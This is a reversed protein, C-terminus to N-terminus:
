TQDGKARTMRVFAYAPIVSILALFVVAIAFYSPGWSAYNGVVAIFNRPTLPGELRPMPNPPWIDWGGDEHLLSVKGVGGGANRRFEDLARAAEVPTINPGLIYWWVDGNDNTTRYLVARATRNRLWIDLTESRPFIARWTEASFQRIREAYGPSGANDQAPPAEDEPRSGRSSLRLDAQEEPVISADGTDSRIAVTTQGLLLRSIEDRRLFPNDTIAAMDGPIQAIRLFSPQQGAILGLATFRGQFPLAIRQDAAAASIQAASIRGLSAAGDGLTMTPSPPITLSSDPLIALMDTDHAPCELTPPNGPVIMEFSVLNTGSKLLRAPFDIPLEPQIQGGDRDLPLLRITQGNVKVLLISGQTLDDAFGYHLDLRARQSALILWDDPLSFPVRIEAFRTNRLALDQGLAKFSATKGPTLSPVDAQTPVTGLVSRVAQALGSGDTVLMILAGSPSRLFRIQSTGGQVISIGVRRGSVGAPAYPSLVRVSPIEPLAARVATMVQALAGTDVGEQMRVELPQGAAVSDALLLRFSAADAPVVTDPLTAGSRHLDIETWVGFSAEPGCFIRHHQKLSLSITNVGSRLGMAPFRIEDWGDLFKLNWSRAEGGNVRISITSREPLNNVSSRLVLGIQSPFPVGDPLSLTLTADATEGTIRLIGPQPLSVGMRVTGEPTGRPPRLGMLWVGPADSSVKVGTTDRAIGGIQPLAGDTVIDGGDETSGDADPASVQPLLIEPSLDQSGNRIQAEVTGALSLGVIAAALAPLACKRPSPISFNRFPM